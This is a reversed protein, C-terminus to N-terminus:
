LDINFDVVVLLEAVRPRHDIEAVASELTSANRPALYCVVVHWRRGGTVLYFSIINPGHHQHAEVVFRPSEKYFLAVGRRNRSLSNICHCLLRHFIM